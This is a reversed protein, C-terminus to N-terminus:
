RRTAPMAQRDAVLWAGLVLVASRYSRWNLPWLCWALCSLRLADRFSGIRRYAGSITAALCSLQWRRAIGTHLHKRLLMELARVQDPRRLSTLSDDHERYEYLIQSLHHVAACRSLRLFYDYDEVMAMNPDYEGALEAVSRRYLFAAGFKNYEWFKDPRPHAHYVLRGGRRRLMEAFVFGVRENNRLYRSMVAFAEPLYRNDDSTWTFFQGRALRFGNNLARPLGLNAQRVYTVRNDQRAYRSVIEGTSDSSGDDVVILELSRETQHLVSEM